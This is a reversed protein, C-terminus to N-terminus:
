KKHQITITRNLLEDLLNEGALFEQRIEAAFVPLRQLFSRAFDDNLRAADKETTIIFDANDNEFANELRRLDEDDYWHHDAFVMYEIIEVGAHNLMKKFSEPHGIGSFVVVGKGQIEAVNKKQNSLIRNFSKLKTQIGAAPKEFRKLKQEASDFMARDECRSVIILDARQLSSTPERRNGAPLLWDSELIEQASAVVINGDRHLYRHQFGDDLIIATAGLEIAKQAGRVRQEDVVVITNSFKQALQSPEDGSQEVPAINGNGDNAVITGTSNRGYGRSVVACRHIGSIKELLLEVFPTKGVGGVSINGVSIVPVGVKTTKLIQKEFFWNRVGVAIGYLLSFPVLLTRLKM